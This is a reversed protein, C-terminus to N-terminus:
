VQRFCAEEVTTEGSVIQAMVNDDISRPLGLLSLIFSSAVTAVSLLALTSICALIFMDSTKRGPRLFSRYREVLSSM